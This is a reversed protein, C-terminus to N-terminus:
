KKQFLFIPYNSDQNSVLIPKIGIMRSFTEVASQVGPWRFDDGCLVGGPSTLRWGEKLDSLVFEFQHNGDAFVVDFSGSFSKLFISSDTRKLSFRSKYKENLTNSVLHHLYDLSEQENFGGLIKWVDRTFHDSEDYTAVYPDVGLYNLNQYKNLLHDAHWGYAVGIELFSEAKILEIIADLTYYYLSPWTSQLRYKDLTKKASEEDLKM